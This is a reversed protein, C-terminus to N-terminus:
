RERGISTQPHKFSTPNAAVASRPLQMKTMGSQRRSDCHGRPWSQRADISEANTRYFPAGLQRLELFCKDAIVDTADATGSAPGSQKRPLHRM